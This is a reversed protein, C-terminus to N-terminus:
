ILRTIKPSAQHCNKLTISTAEQCLSESRWCPMQAYKILQSACKDTGLLLMKNLKPTKYTTTHIPRVDHMCVVVSAMTEPVSVRHLPEARRNPIRINMDDM